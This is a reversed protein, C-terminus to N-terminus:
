EVGRRRSVRGAPFGGSGAVRIVFQEGGNNSSEALVEGMLGTLTSALKRRGFDERLAGDDTGSRVELLINQLYLYLLRGDTTAAIRRIANEFAVKDLAM